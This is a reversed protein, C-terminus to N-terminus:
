VLDEMQQSTALGKIWNRFIVIWFNRNWKHCTDIWDLDAQRATTNLNMAQKQWSLVGTTDFNTKSKNLALKIFRFISFFFFSAHYFSWRHYYLIITKKKFSLSKHKLFYCFNLIFSHSSRITSLTLGQNITWPKAWPGHIETRNMTRNTTRNLTRKM